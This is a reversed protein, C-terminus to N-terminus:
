SKDLNKRQESKRARRDNSTVLVKTPEALEQGPNFPDFDEVVITGEDTPTQPAVLYGDDDAPITGAVESEAEGASSDEAIVPDPHQATLRKAQSKSRAKVKKKTM